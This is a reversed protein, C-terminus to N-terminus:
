QLEIREAVKEYILIKANKDPLCAIDEKEFPGYNLLDIGVLPPTNELFRIVIYNFEEKEEESEIVPIEPKKKMLENHVDLELIAETKKLINDKFDQELEYISSAKIKEYGKISSILNQYLLKEAEYVHNLDIEKLSFSFNIIKIERIKLLDNFLYTFNNKYSELVQNKIENKEEEKYNKLFHIIKKYFRFNEQNLVTLNSQQFENLWQQYLKEYEKKLDISM